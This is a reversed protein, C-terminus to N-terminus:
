VVVYITEGPYIQMGNNPFIYATGGINDEYFTEKDVDIKLTYPTRKFITTDQSPSKFSFSLLFLLLCSIQKMDITSKGLVYIYM